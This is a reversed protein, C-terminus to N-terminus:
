EFVGARILDALLARAEIFAEGFPVNSYEVLGRLVRLARLLEPAHQLLAANAFDEQTLPTGIPRVTLAIVERKNQKVCCLEFVTGEQESPYLFWPGPSHNVPPQTVKSDQPANSPAQKDTEVM